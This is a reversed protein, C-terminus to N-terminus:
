RGHSIPAAANPGVQIDAQAFPTLGSLSLLAQDGVDIWSVAAGTRRAAPTLQSMDPKASVTHMDERAAAAIPAAPWIMVKAKDELEDLRSLAAPRAPAGGDTSAAARTLM